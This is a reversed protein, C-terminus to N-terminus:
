VFPDTGTHLELREWTLEDLATRMERMMVHEIRETTMEKKVSNYFKIRRPSEKLWGNELEVITRDKPRQRSTRNYAKFTLKGSEDMYLVGEVRKGRMVVQLLELANLLYIYKKMRQTSKTLRLKSNSALKNM